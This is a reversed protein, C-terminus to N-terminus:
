RALRPDGRQLQESCSRATLLVIRHRLRSVSKLVWKIYRIMAVGEEINMHNPTDVKISFIVDFHKLGLGFDHRPGLRAVLEPSLDPVDSM